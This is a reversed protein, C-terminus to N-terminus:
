PPLGLSPYRPSKAHLRQAPLLRKPRPLCEAPSSTLLSKSAQAWPQAPSALQENLKWCPSGHATWATGILLLSSSVLRSARTDYTCTSEGNLERNKYQNLYQMCIRYFKALMTMTMPFGIDLKPSKLKLWTNDSIRAVKLMSSKDCM